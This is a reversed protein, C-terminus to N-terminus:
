ANQLHAPCIYFRPCSTANLMRFAEAKKREKKFRLIRLSQPSMSSVTCFTQNAKLLDTHIPLSSHFPQHLKATTVLKKGRELFLIIGVLLHTSSIQMILLFLEM